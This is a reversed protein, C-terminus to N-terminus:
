GVPIALLRQVRAHCAACLAIMLDLDEVSARHHGIIWDRGGRFRCAV